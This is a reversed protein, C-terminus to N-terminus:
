QIAPESRSALPASALPAILTDGFVIRTQSSATYDPRDYCSVGGLTRYCYLAASMYAVQSPEVPELPKCYDEDRALYLVSCDRDTSFGVAHDVVTKDTHILTAMSAGMVMLGVEGGCASLGLLSACILFVRTM